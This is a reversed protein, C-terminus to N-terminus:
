EKGMHISNIKAAIGYCPYNRRDHSERGLSFEEKEWLLRSVPVGTVM